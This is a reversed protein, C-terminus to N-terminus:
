ERGRIAAVATAYFDASGFNGSKLVARLPWDGLSSCLPVGPEINRGVRLAGWGLRRSIAGSTEGGAIVVGVPAARDVICKTADALSAGIRRGAEAESLGNGEAWAQVRRVDAEASATRLLCVRGARIEDAAADIAASSVGGCALEIGDFVFSRGGAREFVGNQQATARSCSGAVILVGGHSQPPTLLPGAASPRWRGSRQWEPPLAIAPASSGTILALDHTAGAIAAFDSDSVCDVIAIAVGEARLEALRQRLAQAGAMVARYDALGVQRRTQTALLTVLNPNTMPTLPHNRMPSDSLLQRGVFHHGMYTTRGNVPLAPLAITFTEGTADMAADISQGINGESTSDFTSCYKIQLVCPDLRRLLQVADATRAYAEAPALARSGAGFVVADCGAVYETLQAGAPEGILLVPRMGQEALMGALDTAGTDDDAVAAFFVSM